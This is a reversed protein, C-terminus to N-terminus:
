YRPNLFKPTSPDSKITPAFFFQFLFIIGFLRTTHRWCKTIAPASVARRHILVDAVPIRFRQFQFDTFGEDTLSRAAVAPAIGRKFVILLCRAIGNGLKGYWHWCHGDTQCRGVLM